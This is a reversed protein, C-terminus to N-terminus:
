RGIRDSRPEGRVDVRRPTAEAVKMDHVGDEVEKFEQPAGSWTLDGTFLVLDPERGVVEAMHKLDDRWSDCVANWDRGEEGCGRHLDSLHLWAVQSRPM